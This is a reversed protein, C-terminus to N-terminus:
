AVRLFIPNPVDQGFLTKQRKSQWTEFRSEMRAKITPFFSQFVQSGPGHDGQWFAYRSDVIKLFLVSFRWFEEPRDASKMQMFWHRAWRNRVYAFRAAAAARGLFGKHAAFRNLVDEAHSNCDSFGSVMLAHAIASPINLALKADMYKSIDSHRGQSFAALVEVGLDSDNSAEDLRQYCLVRIESVDACSWLAVSEAPVKSPGFVRNISPAESSLKQFLKAARTQDIRAMARALGLGFFHLADLPWSSMSELLTMWSAALAPEGGVIAELGDWSVDDIIVTAEVSTVEKSFREFAEM